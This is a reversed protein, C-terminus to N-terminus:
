TFGSFTVTCLQEEARQSNSTPHLFPTFTCLLSNLFPVLVPPCCRPLKRDCNWKFYCCLTLVSLVTKIKTKVTANNTQQEQSRRTGQYLHYTWSPHGLHKRKKEKIKYKKFQKRQEREKRGERRRGEEM